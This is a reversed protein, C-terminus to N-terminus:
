SEQEEKQERLAIHRVLETIAKNQEVIMFYMKFLIFFIIGLCFFIIANINSKIGFIKAILNSFFDPFISFLVVAMWFLIGLSLEYISINSKVRRSVMKIIFLLAIIPVIIQFIRIEM